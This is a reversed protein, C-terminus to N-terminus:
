NFPAYPWPAYPMYPPNPYDMTPVFGRLFGAPNTVPTGTEDTTAPEGTTAEARKASPRLGEGELSEARRRQSGSPDWRSPNFRRPLTTEMPTYVRIGTGFNVAVRRLLDRSLEYDGLHCPGITVRVNTLANQPAITIRASRGDPTRADILSIGSPELAPPQAVTFGLDGLAEMMSSEIQPPSFQYLQSMTGCFSDFAYDSYSIGPLHGLSQYFGLAGCGTCAPLWVLLVIVPGVRRM